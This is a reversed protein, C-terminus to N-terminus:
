RKNIEICAYTFSTKLKGMNGRSPIEINREIIKWIERMKEGGNEYVWKSAEYFAREEDKTLFICRLIKAYVIGSEIM